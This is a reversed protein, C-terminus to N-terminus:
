LEKQNFDHEFGVTQAELAALTFLPDTSGGVLWEGGRYETEGIMAAPHRWKRHKVEVVYDFAVWVSVFRLREFPEKKLRFTLFFFFWIQGVSKWTLVM